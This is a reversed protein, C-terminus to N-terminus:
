KGVNSGYMFDDLREEDTMSDEREDDAALEAVDVMYCNKCMDDDLSKNEHTLLCGCGVCCGKDVVVSCGIGTVVEKDKPLDKPVDKSCSYSKPMKPVSVPKVKRSEDRKKMQKVRRKAEYKM